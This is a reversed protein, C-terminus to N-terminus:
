TKGNHACHYLRGNHIRDFNAGIRVAKADCFQLDYQIEKNISDKIIKACCMIYIAQTERILTMILKRNLETLIRQEPRCSKRRLGTFVDQNAQEKSTAQITM